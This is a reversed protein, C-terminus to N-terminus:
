RHCTATGADIAAGGGVPMFQWSYEGQGLTLRLVGWDANYRFESNPLPLGIPNLEHGGTGVVFQRVGRLPDATGDARQPAFREYIHEHGSLVMEVGAAYLADFFPRMQTVSGYGAGSNFAPYHWYAITCLSDSSRALDAKLWTYQESQASVDVLSDLSIFHWGGHDFSYYGRRDPGAQVGFYDFYGVAGPTNYDHNGPSPRIRDKFTGWTPHFCNAFEAPTGNDYAHDGLTLVLADQPTVLAATRAAASAAAPADYCQGIDGAAVIRVPAIPVPVCGIVGIGYGEAIWGQVIMQERIAFSTTYRHNPAGTPPPDNYLRYLPVTDGACNGATDPLKMAFVEGEFQWAPKGKVIACEWDLPTYFHSSKPAYTQGSWFRCTSAAGATNLDFVGFSEGTRSWGSFSGADLAAIEQPSATVFYHGYASHYYEVATSSAAVALSSALGCSAIVLFRLLSRMGSEKVEPRGTALRRAMGRNSRHGEDM